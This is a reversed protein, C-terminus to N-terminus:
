HKSTTESKKFFSSVDDLFAKIVNRFHNNCFYLIFFHLGHMVYLFIRAILELVDLWLSKQIFFKLVYFIAFPTTGITSFVSIIILSILINRNMNAKNSKKKRLGTNNCLQVLLEFIFFFIKIYLNQYDLSINKGESKKILKEKNKLYRKFLVYNIVNLVTLIITSM